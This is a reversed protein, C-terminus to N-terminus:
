VRKKNALSKTEFEEFGFKEKTTFGSHNSLYKRLREELSESIHNVYFQDLIALHLIYMDNM